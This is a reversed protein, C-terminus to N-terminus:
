RDSQVVYPLSVACGMSSTSLDKLMEIHIARSFFCTFLLGYRKYTNRGQKVIFPDFCDMGCYSFPPSPDVRESPLDAMRQEETPRRHKRCIVCQQFFAVVRNMGPIWFGDSRIENMTFGKGQHKVKEHCDAIIMKTIPHSKPIVMPHKLAYSSAANGLRGGVKLVGDEGIFPDLTYLENNQPITKGQRITNIEDKYTESQLAKVIVCEAKKKETVTALHNSKDKKIWRLIRAVAKTASSWSSFNSLRDTLASQAISVTNLVRAVKVEPDGVSLESSVETFLDINEEWLFKPGTFWNSTLMERVTLGRSAHNAPNEETSIYKLQQPTSSQHIRQVKNAVFLHFHRAENNVYGLVVKSDTWFFEDVNEYELEGKLMSSAKVSTVAATLELRPITTLKMPAVRSKAIVLACHINGKQNRLRVYSCQGYGLTSADSFHHLEAKIVEGFSAPAYCRPISLEKLITLDEKWCEWRPKLVSPLPGPGASAPIGTGHKCMEQLITKGGLLVPAIFGLPDYVSAVTSLINCRTAPQDQLQIRFKFCDSERHWLIGLTRELPVDDFTFEVDKLEAQESAPIGEMVAVDNSMFKHLRPLRSSPTETRLECMCTVVKMRFVDPKRDLDGDKWWLFCLYDRDPENVHLQHFMKEVDCMLAIHHQRFRILIGNLNNILDPGQLLHYNLRTGQYKASCDFVM